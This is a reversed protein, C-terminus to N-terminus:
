GEWPALAFFVWRTGIFTMKEQKVKHLLHDKRRKLSSLFFNLWPLYDPRGQRISQQTKQLALYYHDKSREIVSELSSYPVYEYSARLLLLTTLVRSLRGNGDLFPHIALFEVIFIGIIILPHHTEKRLADDAWSVLELFKISIESVQIAIAM